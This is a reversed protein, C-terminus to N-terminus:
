YNYGKFTGNQIAQLETPSMQGNQVLPQRDAVIGQQPQGYQQQPMQSGFGGAFQMQPNYQPQGFRMQSFQQQQPNIGQQAFAQREAMATAM